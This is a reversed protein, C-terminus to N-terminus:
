RWRLSIRLQLVFRKPTHQRPSITRIENSTIAKASAKLQINKNGVSKAVRFNKILKYICITGQEIFRGTIPDLAILWIRVKSDFCATAVIMRGKGVVAPHFDASYVFSPHIMTCVLLEYSGKETM